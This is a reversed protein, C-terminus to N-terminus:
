EHAPSEQSPLRRNALADDLTRWLCADRDRMVGSDVPGAWGSSRSLHLVAGAFMDPVGLADRFAWFCADSGLARQPLYCVAVRPGNEEDWAESMASIYEAISGGTDLQSGNFSSPGFFISTPRPLCPVDLILFSPHLYEVEYGDANLRSQRIGAMNCARQCRDFVHSSKCNDTRCAVRGRQPIVALVSIPAILFVDQETLLITSNSYKQNVIEQWVWNIAQGHLWSAGKDVWSSASDLEFGNRDNWRDWEEEVPVSICLLGLNRCIAYYENEFDKSPPDKIVVIYDLIGESLFTRFTAVQDQLMLPQNSQISIVTINEKCIYKGAFYLLLIFIIMIITSGHM